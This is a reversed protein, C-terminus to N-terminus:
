DQAYAARAFLTVANADPLLFSKDLGPWAQESMSLSRM